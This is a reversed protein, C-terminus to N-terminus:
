KGVCFNSFLSDLIDESTTEGSIEGLAEIASAVDVAAMDVPERAELAAEADRLSAAARLLADRHRATGIRAGSHVLASGIDDGERMDTGVLVMRITSALESEGAGTAASVGIFGSPVPLSLPEDIKNWVLVAGPNAKIFAADEPLLGLSADAVYIIADAGGAALLSRRVGEAEVPDASERVGATDVLRVPLGGLDLEAELYDRTTGPVSSVIAREEKLLRNFISSKGANTRGALVVVAGDRLARGVAYSDALRECAERAAQLSPIVEVIDDPSEDEGYDLRLAFAAAVAVLRDKIASLERSLGGTLRAFADARAASTRASVLEGVAEARALDMKGNYFARFTFEGPLARRFGASELAEMVGASPEQGGHAMIDVGDQGTYSAPERFVLAVVEDVARGDAGLIKGYTATYGASDRLVDPRSFVRSLRDVSSPGAVRLVALAGAGPPTALAAIDDEIDLYGKAM